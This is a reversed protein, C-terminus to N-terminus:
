CGICWYVGNDDVGHNDDDNDEHHTLTGGTQGINPSVMIIIWVMIMMMMRMISVINGRDTRYKPQSM